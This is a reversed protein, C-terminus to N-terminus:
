FNEVGKLVWKKLEWCEVDNEREALRSAGRTVAKDLCGEREAGVHGVPDRRTAERILNEVHQIHEDDREDVDDEILRRWHNLLNFIVKLLGM